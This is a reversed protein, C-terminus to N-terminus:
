VSVARKMEIAIGTGAVTTKVTESKVVSLTVRAGPASRALALMLTSVIGADGAPKEASERGPPAAANLSLVSTERKWRRVHDDGSVTWHYPVLSPRPLMGDRPKAIGM